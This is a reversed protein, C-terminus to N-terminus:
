AVIASQIERRVFKSSSSAARHSCEKMRPGIHAFDFKYIIEELHLSSFKKQFDIITKYYNEKCHIYSLVCM